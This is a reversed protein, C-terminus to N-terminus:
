EEVKLGLAWLKHFNSDSMGAAALCPSQFWPMDPEIEDELRLRKYHLMAMARGSPSEIATLGKKVWEDFDFINAGAIFAHQLKYLTMVPAKEEDDVTMSALLRAEADAAAISAAEPNLAVVRDAEHQRSDVEAVDMAKAATLLVPAFGDTLANLRVTYPQNVYEVGDAGKFDIMFIYEGRKPDFAASHINHLIPDFRLM